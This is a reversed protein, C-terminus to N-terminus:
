EPDDLALLDDDDVFEFDPASGLLSAIDRGEKKSGRVLDAIYASVSKKARRAEQRAKAAVADPLYITLQSMSYEYVM